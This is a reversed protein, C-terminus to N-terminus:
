QRGLAAQVARLADIEGWGYVNNPTGTVGGCACAPPSSAAALQSILDSAAPPPTTPCAATVQTPTATHRIIDESAQLDGRLDPRASWLLAVLGAVHPGAMSTGDALAYGGGPVSSRIGSGPAAIDPKLLEGDAQNPVPGRSSFGTIVGSQSTAGVSFSAAYLAPPDTVTECAPGDNGASVVMMIGAARMADLAVKLTEPRCGEYDPCGWSNNVVDAARTVDGDHFADGGLPYPALLFETCETYAGPNGIGRRMNRCGIWRAEPAVGIQNQEGDRGLVIGMTHTGHNDDDHPAATDDWADHWNYNHDATATEANWGRYRDKLAPHTWDYGTDEGGVVVGQGKYGMAWVDTAKIQQINWTVGTGGPAPLMGVPTHRPYPRVNPNVMVYAVGPLDAFRERQRHHGDVRIMNILYYPRYAYGLEDLRARIPAQTEEATQVLTQYVYARRQIPDSMTYAASLDAQADMMIIFGDNHFGPEGALVWSGGWGSWVVVAALAALAFTAPRGLRWRSALSRRSFWVLGALLAAGLAMWGGALWQSPELIEDRPDAFLLPVARYFWAVLTGAWISGTLYRLQTTLLALPILVSILGLGGWNGAPLVQTPLFALYILLSLLTALGQRRGRNYMLVGLIVGRFLIEEPLVLSLGRFVLGLSAWNDGLAGTLPWGWTLLGVLGLGLALGSVPPAQLGFLAAMDRRPIELAPLVAVGAAIAVLTLGGLRLGTELVSADGAVLRIIVALLSYALTLALSFGLLRMSKWGTRRALLLAVAVPILLLLMLLLLGIIQSLTSPLSSFLARQLGAIALPALGFWTLLLGAVALLGCSLRSKSPSDSSASMRNSTAATM